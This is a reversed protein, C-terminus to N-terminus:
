KVSLFKEINQVIEDMSVKAKVFYGVAGLAEGREIDSQQGLNSIFVVPPKHYEPHSMLTEMFEFGSIQPMIIDLLIIDANETRLFNLADQGNTFLTSRFGAREIRQRLLTGLLREDEIIIVHKKNEGELM